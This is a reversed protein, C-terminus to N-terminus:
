AGDEEYWFLTYGFNISAGPNTQNQMALVYDWGPRLLWEDYQNVSAGVKNNGQSAGSLIITDMLKVDTGDGLTADTCSKAVVDATNSSNENRNVPTLTTESGTVTKQRWLTVTSPGANTSIVVPNFHVWTGVGDDLEPMTLRVTGIKGSAVALVGSLNFALGAHILAHNTPITPYAGTVRERPMGRSWLDGM